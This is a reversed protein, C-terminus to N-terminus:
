GDMLLGPYRCAPWPPGCGGWRSGAATSGAMCAAMVAGTSQCWRCSLWAGSRGMPACLVAEALEFLADARAPLCRYFEQRFGSLEGLAGAQVGDRVRIM